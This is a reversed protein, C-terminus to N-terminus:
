QLKEKLLGTLNISRAPNIYPCADSDTNVILTLNLEAGTQNLLEQIRKHLPAYIEKEAQAMLRRSEEKFAINKNMLEQLETQRKKLITLPFDKQGELFEEYKKNFDNKVRIAEEEYKAKLEEIQKQAINYEPMSMFIEGYSFYGVTAEAHQAAAVPYATEVDQAKTSTTSLVILISILILKM